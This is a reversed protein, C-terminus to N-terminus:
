GPADHHFALEGIRLEIGRELRQAILIAEAFRLLSDGADRGLELPDQVLRKVLATPEALRV